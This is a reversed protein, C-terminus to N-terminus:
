GEVVVVRTIDLWISLELFYKCVSLLLGGELTSLVGFIWSKKFVSNLLSGSKNYWTFHEVAFVNAGQQVFRWRERIDGWVRLLLFLFMWTLLSEGWFEVTTCWDEYGRYWKFHLSFFCRPSDIKEGRLFWVSREFSWFHPVKHLNKPCIGRWSLCASSLLPPKQLLQILYKSKSNAKGQNGSNWNTQSLSLRVM